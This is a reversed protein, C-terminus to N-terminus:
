RTTGSWCDTRPGASRVSRQRPHGRRGHRQLLMRPPLRSPPSLVSAAIEMIRSISFDPDNPGLFNNIAFDMLKIPAKDMRIFGETPAEPPFAHNSRPPCTHFERIRESVLPSAYWGLIHLWEDVHDQTIGKIAPHVFVDIFSQAITAFADEDLAVLRPFWSSAWDFSFSVRPVQLAAMSALLCDLIHEVNSEHLLLHSDMALLTYANFRIPGGLVGRFELNLIADDDREPSILVQFGVIFEIPGDMELTHNFTFKSIPHLLDIVRFTDLNTMSLKTLLLSTPIQLINQKLIATGRGEADCCLNVLVHGTHDSSLKERVVRNLVVDRSGKSSAKPRAGLLDNVVTSVLNLVLSDNYPAFLLTSNEKYPKVMRELLRIDPWVHRPVKIASKARSALHLLVNASEVALALGSCMVPDVVYPGIVGAFSAYVAEIIATATKGLGEIRFSNKKFVFNASCSALSVNAVLNNKFAYKISSSFEGNRIDVIVRLLRENNNLLADLECVMGLNRVVASGVSENSYDKRSFVVDTAEFRSCSAETLNFTGVTPVHISLDVDTKLVANRLFSNMFRSYHATVMETLVVVLLLILVSAVNPGTPARSSSAGSGM